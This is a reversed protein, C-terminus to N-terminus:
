KDREKLANEIEEHIMTRFHEPCNREELEKYRRDIFSENSESNIPSFERCGSKDDKVLPIRSTVNEELMRMIFATNETVAM